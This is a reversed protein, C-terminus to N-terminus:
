FLSVIFLGSMNYISQHMYWDEILGTFGYLIAIEWHLMRNEGKWKAAETPCSDVPHYKPIELLYM